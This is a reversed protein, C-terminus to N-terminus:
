AVDIRPVYHRGPELLGRISFSTPREAGSLLRALHPGTRPVLIRRVKSRSRPQGLTNSSQFRKVRKSLKREGGHWVPGPRQSWLQTQRLLEARQLRRPQTPAGTLSLEV